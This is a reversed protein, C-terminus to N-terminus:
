AKDLAARVTDLRTQLIARIAAPREAANAKEHAEVLKAALSGAALNKKLRQLNEPDTM